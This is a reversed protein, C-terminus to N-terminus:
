ATAGLNLSKFYSDKAKSNLKGKDLIMEVLFGVIAAEQEPSPQDFLPDCAERYATVAAYLAEILDPTNKAGQGKLLWQLSVDEKESIALAISVPLDRISLEYNKYARDSLGYKEGFKGQSLGTTQRIEVLRQGISM